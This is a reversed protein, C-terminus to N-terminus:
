PLRSERLHHCGDAKPVGPAAYPDPHITAICDGLEAEIATQVKATVEHAEIFSLDARVELHLDIIRTRGSQRSRLEHVGFVHPSVARAVEAVRGTVAAPLEQDMLEAIARKAIQWASSALVVAIFLSAIPDMFRIGLFEYLLLALVAAANTLVDSLYHLADAALAMSGLKKARRRLFVTILVSVISSVFLVAVGIDVRQISEPAMLRRLSQWVLIAASATVLGAQALSSLSEAKGHGFRHDEDPPVEATRIAYWNTTSAIFDLVSDVLSAAVALSGTLLATVAKLAILFLVGAIPVLASRSRRRDTAKATM